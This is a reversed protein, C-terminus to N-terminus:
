QTWNGTTAFIGNIVKWFSDNAELSTSWFCVEKVEAEGIGEVQDVESEEYTILGVQSKKMLSWFDKRNGGLKGGLLDVKLSQM